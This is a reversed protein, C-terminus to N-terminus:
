ASFARLIRLMNGESDLWICTSRSTEPDVWVHLELVPGTGKVEIELVGTPGDDLAHWTTRPHLCCVERRLSARNNTESERPKNAEIRQHLSRAPIKRMGRSRVALIRTALNRGGIDFFDM